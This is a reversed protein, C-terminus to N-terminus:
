NRNVMRRVDDETYATKGREGSKQIIEPRQNKKQSRVVDRVSGTEFEENADGFVKSRDRSQQSAYRSASTDFSENSERASKTAGKFAEDSERSSKGVQSFESTKYKDSGHFEHKGAYDKTKFESSKFKSDANYTKQDFKSRISTDYKKGKKDFGSDM